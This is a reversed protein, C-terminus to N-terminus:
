STTLMKLCAADKVHLSCCEKRTDKSNERLEVSAESTWAMENKCDNRIASVNYIEGAVHRLDVGSPYEDRNGRRV